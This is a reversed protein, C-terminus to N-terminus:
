KTEIRYLADKTRLFFAKGGVAPSANFGDALKNRALIECARGPRIVTTNGQQNFFYIRGDAYVPSAVFTGGIPQAWVQQGTKAELCFLKGSESVAYLLDGVLLPSPTRTAPLKAKWTIHTKTVDGTGDPRIACLENIDHGSHLFALGHDFIPSSANSYGTYTIKWLEKGTRADYSYAAKAGPSFLQPQVGVMAVCPTTYAKRMDGEKIPQGTSDLDTWKTTRDTKWVTKGTMKDLAAVYQMDVGDMTLILLNEFLIISSGPGRYHRCPLDTREWITKGTATDLCATGYSGFHVYVRGPEVAPSPAAYCNVPNGLPEPADCHFVKLNHVIKGTEADVGIAYFDHGAPDATTLWVQGGLVVPTSWGRLPIPTKWTVNETESWTLPLGLTTSDGAATVHGDGLPGRFQPWDARAAHANILLVAALLLFRLGHRPFDSCVNM